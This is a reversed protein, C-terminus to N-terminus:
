ILIRSLRQRSGLAVNPDPDVPNHTCSNIRLLNGYTAKAKESIRQLSTAHVLRNNVREREGAAFENISEKDDDVLFRKDEQMPIMVNRHKKIAPM